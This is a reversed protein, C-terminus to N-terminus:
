VLKLIESIFIIIGLSLIIIKLLKKLNNTSIKNSIFFIAILMGIIAFALCLLIENSINISNLPTYILFSLSNIAIILLSSGIAQSFPVKLVSLFIPVILFGAGAGLMGTILGVFCASFIFKIYLVKKNINETLTSNSIQLSAFIMIGSFILMLLSSKPIIWIFEPLLNVIYNKGIYTFFTSFLLFFACYKVNIKHKVIYNIFAIASTIGVILNCYTNANSPNINFLYVLIPLFLISGGSGLLGISLGVLLTLLYGIAFSISLM